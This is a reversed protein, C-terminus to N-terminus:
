IQNDYDKDDQQLLMLKLQLKQGELIQLWFEDHTTVMQTPEWRIFEKVKEELDKPIM